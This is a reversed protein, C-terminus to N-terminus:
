QNRNPRFEAFHPDDHQRCKFPVNFAFTGKSRSRTAIHELAHGRSVDDLPDATDMPLAVFTTHFSESNRPNVKRHLGNSEVYTRRLARVFRSPARVAFIRKWM